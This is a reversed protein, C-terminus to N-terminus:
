VLSSYEQLYELSKLLAINKYPEISPESPSTSDNLKPRAFLSLRRLDSFKVLEPLLTELVSSTGLHRLQTYRSTALVDHPFIASEVYRIQPTDLNILIPPWISDDEAYSIDVILSYLSPLPGLDKLVNVSVKVLQEDVESTSGFFYGPLPKLRLYQIRSTERQLIIRQINPDIPVEITVEPPFDKSLYLASYALELDEVDGRIYISTWLRPESVIISSWRQCVQM